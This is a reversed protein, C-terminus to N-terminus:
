WLGKYVLQRYVEATALCDGLADHARQHDIGLTTTMYRLNVKPFPIQEVHADARDNLYLAAAMTDRYRADFHFNFNEYGLWDVIFERDFSWNQALPCIRKGPALKLKNFWEGFLDAASMPDLGTNVADCLFQRSCGLQREQGCNEMYLPKLMMYFPVVKKLPKLQSDLPLVCIQLISDFRAHLGTAEIDVVCLMNGNLHIM